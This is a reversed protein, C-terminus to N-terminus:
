ETEFGSREPKYCVAKVVVGGCVGFILTLNEFIPPAEFVGGWFPHFYKFGDAIVYPSYIGSCPQLFNEEPFHIYV